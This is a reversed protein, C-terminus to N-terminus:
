SALCIAVTVKGIITKPAILRTKQGTRSAARLSAAECVSKVGIKERVRKSPNPTPIADLEAASFFELPLGLERAAEVLGPEDAKLDISALAALSGPALGAKDMVQALADLIEAKNVGRRCGIGAYLCRPHLILGPTEVTKWTVLVQAKEDLLEFFDSHNDRLGLRNEPDCVTVAGGEALISNVAAIGSPGAIVCNKSQALTDIAPRSATDTATTIVPRAKIHGAIRRALDNAGGLHGSLLSIVHEGNQDCVIVAPDTTKSHM